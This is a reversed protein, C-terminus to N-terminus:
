IAPGGPMADLVLAGGGWVATQLLAAGLCLARLSRSDQHIGCDFAGIPSQAM